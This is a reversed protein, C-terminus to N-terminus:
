ITMHLNRDVLSGNRKQAYDPFSSFLWKGMQTVLNATVPNQHIYHFCTKAYIQSNIEVANTGQQFLFGTRSFRKNIAQTYSRLLIGIEMNLSNSEQNYNNQTHILWHFHNPMLCYALIRAEPLIHTRMKRLFFLYNETSYFIPQRNNGRNYIHYLEGRQFEM